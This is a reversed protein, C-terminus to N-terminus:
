FRRFGTSAPPNTADPLGKIHRHYIVLAHEFCNRTFGAQAESSAGGPMLLVRDSVMGISVFIRLTQSGHIEDVRITDYKVWVLWNSPDVFLIPINTLGKICAIKMSANDASAYWVDNLVYRFPIQNQVAQRLLQRYVENRTVTSRRKEKGTKQDTYRETKTVLHYGIPLSVEQVHYLASIINIGKITQGSHSRLALLHQRERGYTAKGLHGLQIAELQTLHHPCVRHSLLQGDDESRGM